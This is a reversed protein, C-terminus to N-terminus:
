GSQLRDLNLLESNFFNSNCISNPLQLIKATDSDIVGPDLNFSGNFDSTGSDLFASDAFDVTGNQYCLCDGHRGGASEAPEIFGLRVYMSDMFSTKFPPDDVIFQQPYLAPEDSEITEPPAYVVAPPEIVAPTASGFHVTPFHQSAECAGGAVQKLQQLAHQAQQM